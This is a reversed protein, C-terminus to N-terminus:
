LAGKRMLYVCKQEHTLGTYSMFTNLFDDYCSRMIKILSRIYVKSRSKNKLELSLTHAIPYYWGSGKAWWDAMEQFLSQITIEYDSKAVILPEISNIEHDTLSKRGHSELKIFLSLNNNDLVFDPFRYRDVFRLFHNGLEWHKKKLKM